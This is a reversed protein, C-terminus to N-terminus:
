NSLKTLNIVERPAQMYRAHWDKVQQNDLTIEGNILALLLPLAENHIKRMTPTSSDTM